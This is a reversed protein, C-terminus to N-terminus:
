HGKRRSGAGSAVEGGAGVQLARTFRDRGNGQAGEHGQGRGQPRARVARRDQGREAARGGRAYGETGAGNGGHSSRGNVNGIIGIGFKDGVVNVAKLFRRLAAMGSVDQGAAFGHDDDRGAQQVAGLIAEGLRKRGLDSTDASVKEEIPVYAYKSLAWGRREDGVLQVIRMSNTGIDLSFFDGVGHLLNM